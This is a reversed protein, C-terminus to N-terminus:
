SKGEKRQPHFTVWEGDDDCRKNGITVDDPNRQLQPM